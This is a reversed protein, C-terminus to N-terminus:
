LEAEADLWFNLKLPSVGEDHVRSGLCVRLREPNIVELWLFNRPSSEPLTLLELSCGTQIIRSKELHTISRHRGISSPDLVCYLSATM